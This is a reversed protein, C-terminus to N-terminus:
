RWCAPAYRPALRVHGHREMAEVLIPLLPKLRKGCVRDSAEWIVVLADRVAEDYIRRTPRPASWRKAQGGRLVRMAHKRHFGTVAVFEDLIRTKEGQEGSAYRKIVAAVLEDRTAMSVRRM